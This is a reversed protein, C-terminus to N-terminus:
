CEEMLMATFSVFSASGPFDKRGFSFPLNLRLTDEYTLNWFFAHQGEAPDRSLIEFHKKLINYKSKM